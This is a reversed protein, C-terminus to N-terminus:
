IHEYRRILKYGYFLGALTFLLAFFYAWANTPLTHELDSLYWGASLKAQDGSFIVALMRCAGFFLAGFVAYKLIGLVFGRMPFVACFELPVLMEGHQVRVALHGTYTRGKVLRLPDITLTIEASGQGEWENFVLKEASLSVGPLNGDLALAAVAYTGSALEVTLTLSYPNAAPIAMASLTVPSVSLKTKARQEDMIGLLEQVAALKLEEDKLGAAKLQLVAKRYLARWHPWSRSDAWVFLYDGEALTYLQARLKPQSDAVRIIDAPSQYPISTIYFPLEQGCRYVLKMFNLANRLDDDPFRDADLANLWTMLGGKEYHQYVALFLPHDEFAAAVLAEPTAYITEHIRYGVAPNLAYVITLFRRNPDKESQYIKAFALARDGNSLENVHAKLLAADELYFLAMEQQAFLVEGFRKLSRFREGFLEVTLGKANPPDPDVYHEDLRLERVAQKLVIKFFEDESVEAQRCQDYFDNYVSPGDPDALHLRSLYDKVQETLQRLRTEM